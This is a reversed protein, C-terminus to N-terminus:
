KPPGIKITSGAPTWSEIKLPMTSYPVYSKNSGSLNEKHDIMWKYEVRPNLTPPDDCIHHLWNHWEPPTQSADYDMYVLKNFEVWRNSGYFYADNQYYKNGYKDEGILTGWKMADM